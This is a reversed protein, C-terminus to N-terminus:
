NGSFPDKLDYPGDMAAPPAPHAPPSASAGPTPGPSAPETQEHTAAADGEAKKEATPPHAASPSPPPASSPKRNVPPSRRKRAPPIPEHEVAIPEDAADSPAASPSDSRALAPSPDVAVTPTKRAPAPPPSTPTPPVGAPRNPEANEGPEARTKGETVTPSPRSRTVGFTVGAATVAAAVMAVGMALAITVGTGANSRKTPATSAVSQPAPRVPTPARSSPARRHPSQSQSQSQAQSLSQSQSQSQPPHAPQVRVARQPDVTIGPPLVPRAGGAQDPSPPSRRTGKPPRWGPAGNRAWADAALEALAETSDSGLEMTRKGVERREPAGRQPRHVATTQLETLVEAVEGCDRPRAGPETALLDAVLTELADPVVLQPDAESLRPAVTNLKLSVLEAVDEAFLPVRGVLMEFLMVGLAYLDARHDVRSGRAQEPAMYELTGLVSGPVTQRSGRVHAVGFDLLKIQGAPHTGEECIFVNEPKLDRHVVGAEHAAALGAVIQRALGPVEDPAIRRERALRDSLAEGRLLEMVMYAGGDPLEGCDSLDVVNVHDIQSAARAETLFRRLMDPGVGRLVKVAMPKDILVHTARYVVGMAGGGIERDLRYRRDLVTGILSDATREAM